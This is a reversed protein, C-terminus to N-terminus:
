QNLKMSEVSGDEDCLGSSSKHEERYPSFVHHIVGIGFEDSGIRVETTFKFGDCTGVNAVVIMLGAGVLVYRKRLMSPVATGSALPFSRQTPFWEVRMTICASTGPNGVGGDLGVRGSLFDRIPPWPHVSIATKM